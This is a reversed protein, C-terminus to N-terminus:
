LLSQVVPYIESPDDVLDCATDGQAFYWGYTVGLFQTGAGRAGNLDKMQDGIFLIEGPDIELKEACAALGDAKSNCSDDTFILAEEFLDLCGGLPPEINQRVNATVIGMPLHRAVQELMERVGPYMPTEFHQSFNRNYWDTADRARGPDFGYALFFDEQPSIRTGARAVTEKFVTASVDPLSLGYQRGLHDCVATHAQLSDILVGDVDFVVARIATKAM